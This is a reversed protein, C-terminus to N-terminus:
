KKLSIKKALKYANDLLRNSHEKLEKLRQEALQPMLKAEEQTILKSDYVIAKDMKLLYYYDDNIFSYEINTNQLYWTGKLGFTKEALQIMRIYVQLQANRKRLDFIISNLNDITNETNIENYPANSLTIEILPTFAKAIIIAEKYTCDNLKTILKPLRMNEHKYEIIDIANNVISIVGDIDYFSYKINSKSLDIDYGNNQLYSNITVMIM